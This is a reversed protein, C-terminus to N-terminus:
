FFHKEGYRPDKAYSKHQNSIVIKLLKCNEGIDSNNISKFNIQYKFFLFSFFLFSFFLFSFFLFSFFLFSFFLFFLFTSVFEFFYDEGWFPNATGYKTSTSAKKENDIMVLVYPDINKELKKSALDKAEIIRLRLVIDDIYYYM